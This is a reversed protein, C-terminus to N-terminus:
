LVVSPTQRRHRRRAARGTTRCAVKPRETIHAKKEERPIQVSAINLRPEHGFVGVLNGCQHFGYRYRGLVAYDDQIRGLASNDDWSVGAKNM